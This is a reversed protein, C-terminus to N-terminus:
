TAIEYNVEGNENECFSLAIYVALDFCVDYLNKQKSIEETISPHLNLNSNHAM